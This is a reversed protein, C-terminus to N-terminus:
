VKYSIPKLAGSALRTQRKSSANTHPLPNAITPAINTAQDPISNVPTTEFTDHSEEVITPLRQPLTENYEEDSFTRLPSRRIRSVHIIDRKKARGNHDILEVEYNLPSLKKIIKYPGFNRSLLKDSLGVVRKPTYVRVIDNVNYEQDRHSEDYRAKSKEQQQRTLRVAELRAEELEKIQVDRVIDLHPTLLTDLPLIPDTGYVLYYPSMKTTAQVSTNYALTLHPIFRPWDKHAYKPSVYMSLMESFTRNNRETAGSTQSHYPTATEKTIGLSTLLNQITSNVFESGCDSLIVRPCGIKCIIDHLLFQAVYKAEKTPIPRTFVYRSVYDTAVILYKFTLKTDEDPESPPFPGLLDIGIREFVQYTQIPQLLGAPKRSSPKRALCKVCTLVYNLIDRDMNPWWYRKRIKDATKIYGLHGSIPEDHNQSLVLDRMNFPIVFRPKPDIPTQRLLIEEKIHFNNLFKVEKKDTPPPGNLRSKIEKIYPDEEQFERLEQARNGFYIANLPIENDEIEDEPTGITTPARSLCDADVHSKGSRYQVEFDYPQLKLAFRALRGNLDKVSRLYCLCCHDTRVLFRKGFLYPRFKRVGFIVALCEKESISYNLEAPTMTRSAYAVPQEKGDKTLQVLVIGLSNGCADTRLVQILSPDHHGLCPANCLDKKLQDFAKQHVDTWRFRANKKWLNILPRAKSAFNPLFRRYYGAMGVFRRCEKANRPPPLDMVAAVKEPNPRVGEGSVIHGLLEIQYYGFFCKSPQLSLFNDALRQLVAELKTLHDDFGKGPVVLDDLYCLVSSFTLNGFISNMARQFFSPGNALGFPLRKYQWIGDPTIFSTKDRDQTSVSFQNYGQRLDLCTFVNAQRTADLIDEIRSLPYTDKKTVLNLKRFDVCLRIDGTKKPVLVVPSSWASQSPEVIGASIMEEVQRQIEMREKFSHRYPRQRIPTADGTDITYTFRPCTKLDLPSWAFVHGFQKLLQRIKLAEDEPLDPNIHLLDLQDETLEKTIVPPLPDPTLFLLDPDCSDELTALVIGRPLLKPYPDRNVLFVSLENDVISEPFLLFPNSNLGYKESLSNVPEALLPLEKPLNYPISVPVRQISKPPITLTAKNKLKVPDHEVVFSNNNSMSSKSYFDIINNNNLLIEQKPYSIVASYTTLFDNGLVVPLPCDEVIYFTHTITFNQFKVPITATGLITMRSGNAVRVRTALSNKYPAPILRNSAFSACAGTDILISQSQNNVNASCFILNQPIGVETTNM